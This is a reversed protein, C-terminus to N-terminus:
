SLSKVPKQKGELDYKQRSNSTEKEQTNGFQSKFKVDTSEEKFAMKLLSLFTM